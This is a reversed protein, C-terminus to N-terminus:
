QQQEKNTKILYEDDYIDDKTFWRDEVIHGIGIILGDERRIRCYQSAVRSWDNVGLVAQIKTIWNLMGNSGRLDYGGFGQASAGWAVNIYSTPIGDDETGLMTSRIFANNEETM